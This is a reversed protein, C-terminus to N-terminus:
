LCQTLHELSLFVDHYKTVDGNERSASPLILSDKVTFWPRHLYHLHYHPPPNSAFETPLLLLKCDLQICQHLSTLFLERTELKLIVYHREILDSIYPNLLVPGKIGSIFCRCFSSCVYTM